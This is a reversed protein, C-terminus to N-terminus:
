SVRVESVTQNRAMHIIVLWFLPMLANSSRCNSPHAAVLISPRAQGLPQPDPGHPPPKQTRDLNVLAIQSTNFNAYVAVGIHRVQCFHARM